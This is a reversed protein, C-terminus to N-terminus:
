PKSRILAPLSLATRRNPKGESSGAKSIVERLATNALAAERAAGAVPLIPTTKEGPRELWAATSRTM